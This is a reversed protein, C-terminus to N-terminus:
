VTRIATCNCSHGCPSLGRNRSRTRSEPAAAAPCLPPKPLTDATLLAAPPVPPQPVSGSCGGAGNDGEATAKKACQRWRTPVSAHGRIRGHRPAGSYATSSIAAAEAAAALAAASSPAPGLRLPARLPTVRACSTCAPATSGPCFTIVTAYLPAEYEAESFAAPAMSYSPCVKTLHAAQPAAPRPQMVPQQAPFRTTIPHPPPGSEPCRRAEQVDPCWWCPQQSAKNAPLWPRDKIRVRSRVGMERHAGGAHGARVALLGVAKEM